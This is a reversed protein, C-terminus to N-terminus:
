KRHFNRQKTKKHKKMKIFIYFITAFILLLLFFAISGITIYFSKNINFIDESSISPYLNITNSTERSTILLTGVSKNRNLTWPNITNINYNVNYNDDSNYKSFNQKSLFGVNVTKFPGMNYPLLSYKYSIEKLSVGEKILSEREASYSWDIIKKMDNFVATDDDNSDSKLVIGVIRRSDRQFYAVLCRGAAITYGTKGGICGDINLLKNTNKLDVEVGSQTKLISKEKSLSNMVWPYSYALRAIVSLDYASTYHNSNPLGNPTVFHTNKLGLSKVKENMMDSFTNINGNGINEGIMYAIDNASCLLMADMAQESSIKDGIPINKLNYDITFPEQNKANKSYNLLDKQNKNEALLIATMLKTTSAPYLHSDINKTFIIEKTDVDITIAAKATITPIDSAYVDIFSFSFVLSLFLIFRFLYKM